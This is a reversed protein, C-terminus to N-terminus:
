GGGDGETTSVGRRRGRGGTCCVRNPGGRGTPGPMSPARRRGSCAECVRMHLGRKLPLGEVRLVVARAEGEGLARNVAEGDLGAGSAGLQFGDHFRKEVHGLGEGVVPVKAVGGRLGLAAQAESLATVALASVSRSRM